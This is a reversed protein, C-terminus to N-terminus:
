EILKMLTEALNDAIMRNGFDTCHGFDGAFLDAFVENITKTKLINKFNTENSLFIIKNYYQSNKLMSVLDDLSRCPYQMLVVKINPNFDYISKLIQEYNQKKNREINEFRVFGQNQGFKNKEIDKIFEECGYQKLLFKTTQDNVLRHKNKNVFAKIKKAPNKDQSAYYKLINNLCDKNIPCDYKNIIEEYKVLDQMELYLDCLRNYIHQDNYKLKKFLKKYENEVYIYKREHKLLIILDNDRELISKYGGFFKYQVHRIILQLLNLVKIKYKVYKLGYDNVGMMCVVIQPNYANLDYEINKAIIGTNTSVVGKDIVRINKDVGKNKLSEELFKPYQNYTTSEGICMITIADKKLLERENTYNKYRKIIVSVTQLSIEVVILSILIGILIFIIKKLM